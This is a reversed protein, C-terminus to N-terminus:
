TVALSQALRSSAQPAGGMMASSGCSVACIVDAQAPSATLSPVGLARRSSPMANAAFFAASSPMGATSSGTPTPPESRRMSAARRMSPSAFNVAM